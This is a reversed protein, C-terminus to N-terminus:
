GLAEVVRPIVVEAVAQAGELTEASIELASGDGGEVAAIVTGFSSAQVLLVPVAAVEGSETTLNVNAVQQAVRDDYSGVGVVRITIPSSIPDDDSWTCENPGPYLADDVLMGTLEAIEAADTVTCLEEGLEVLSRRGSPGADTPVTDDDGRDVDVDAGGDDTPATQGATADPAATGDDDDGGCGVLFGTGVVVAIALRVLGGFRRGERQGGPDVRGGLSIGKCAAEKDGSVRHGSTHNNCAATRPGAM